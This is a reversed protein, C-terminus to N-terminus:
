KGAKGKSGSGETEAFRLKTGNDLQYNGSLVVPAKADLKGDILDQNGDSGIVQVDVKKAVSGVAQVVYTHGDANILVASHSVLYGSRQGIAIIAHVNEGILLKGAPFSVQVPVLGTDPNVVASRLLVKGSLAAASANLPVLNVADGAKVSLARAPDVGLEVVLGDPRALEILAGGPSVVSGSGADVKLVIADFPAKFTRPENAGKAILVALASQADSLTKEASTLDSQTGLHVHVLSRNNDLLKQAAFVSVQAQKYSARADMSPVLNLMPAGEKIEQGVQVAVQEVRGDVPATILEQATAAPKVKGFASVTVPLTGQHLAVVKVLASVDGGGADDDAIAMGSAFVTCCALTVTLFRKISM